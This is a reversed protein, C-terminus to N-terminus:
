ARQCDPQQNVPKKLTAAALFVKQATPSIKTILTHAVYFGTLILAIKPSTKTRDQLFMTLGTMCYVTATKVPQPLNTRSVLDNVVVATMTAAADKYVSGLGQPIKSGAHVAAAATGACFALPKPAMTVCRNLLPKAVQKCAAIVAGKQGGASVLAAANGVFSPANPLM